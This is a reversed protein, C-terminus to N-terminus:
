LLSKGGSNGIGKVAIDNKIVAKAKRVKKRLFIPAFAARIINTINVGPTVKRYRNEERIEL